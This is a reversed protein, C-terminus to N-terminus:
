WCLLRTSLWIRETYSLSLFVEEYHTEFAHDGDSPDLKEKESTGELFQLVDRKIKNNIIYKIREIKNKYLVHIYAYILTKM